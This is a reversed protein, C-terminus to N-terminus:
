AVQQYYDLAPIEWLGWALSSLVVFSFYFGLFCCGSYFEEIAAGTTRGEQWQISVCLRNLKTEAATCPARIAAEIRCEPTGKSGSTLLLQLRCSYM